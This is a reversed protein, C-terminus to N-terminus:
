PTMVSSTLQAPPSGPIDTILPTPRFENVMDACRAM